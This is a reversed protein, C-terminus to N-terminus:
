MGILLYVSVLLLSLNGGCRLQVAVACMWLFVTGIGSVARAIKEACDAGWVSAAAAYLIVGGDLRRLPLLNFFALALSSIGFLAGFRSKAGFVSVACLLNLFPGAVAIAIEKKYSLSAADYGIVAGVAVPHFFRIPVRLIRCSLAHGCEHILAALLVPLTDRIGNFLTWGATWFILSTM